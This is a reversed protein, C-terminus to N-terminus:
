KDPFLYFAGAAVLVEKDFGPIASNSASMARGDNERWLIRSAGLRIRRLAIIEFNETRLPSRKVLVVNSEPPRKTSRM